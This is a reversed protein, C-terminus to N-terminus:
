INSEEDIYIYETVKRFNVRTGLEMRVQRLTKKTEKRSDLEAEDEVIYEDIMCEDMDSDLELENVKKILADEDDKNAIVTM